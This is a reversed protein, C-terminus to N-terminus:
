FCISSVIDDVKVLCQQGDSSASAERLNIMLASHYNIGEATSMWQAGNKLMYSSKDSTLSPGDNFRVFANFTARAADRSTQPVGKLGWGTSHYHAFREATIYLEQHDMSHLASTQFAHMTLVGYMFDERQAETENVPFEPYQDFYPRLLTFMQRLFERDADSANQRVSQWTKNYASYIAELCRYKPVNRYFSLEASANFRGTDNQGDLVLWKGPNIHKELGQQYHRASNIAIGKSMVSALIPWGVTDTNL